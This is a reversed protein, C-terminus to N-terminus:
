SIKRFIYPNDRKPIGRIHEDIITDINVDELYAILLKKIKKRPM